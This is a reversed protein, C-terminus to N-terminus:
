RSSVSPELSASHINNVLLFAIQPFLRPLARLWGSYEFGPLSGQPFFFLPATQLSLFSEASPPNDLIHALFGHIKPFFQDFCIFLAVAAEAM